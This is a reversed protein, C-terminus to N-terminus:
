TNSLYDLIYPEWFERTLPLKTNSEELLWFHQNVRAFQVLAKALTRKGWSHCMPDFWPFRDILAWVSQNCCRFVDISSQLETLGNPTQDFDFYVGYTYVEFQQDWIAQADGGFPRAAISQVVRDLKPAPLYYRQAITAEIPLCDLVQEFSPYDSEYVGENVLSEAMDDVDSYYEDWVFVGDGLNLGM